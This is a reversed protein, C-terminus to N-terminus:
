IAVLPSKRTAVSLVSRLHRGYSVLVLVATRQVLEGPRETDVTARHGVMEVAEIDRPPHIEGLQSWSVHYSGDTLIM